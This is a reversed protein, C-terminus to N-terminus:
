ISGDAAAKALYDADNIAFSSFAIKSLFAVDAACLDFVVTKADTASLKKFNGIYKDHAADPAEAQGCPAEGSAPYVSGTFPAESSAAPTATAPAASSPAASPSATSTGCASVAIALAALVAPVSWRHSRTMSRRRRQA